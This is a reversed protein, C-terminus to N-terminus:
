AENMSRALHQRVQYLSDLCATARSKLNQEPAKLDPVIILKMKAALASRAGNDSDELALCYEVDVDLRKAALLYPDPAPKGREVADGGVIFEFNHLIGVKALKREALATATSTAVALRIRASKLFELLEILGAKVPIGERELTAEYDAHFASFLATESIPRGMARALFANSSATNLGICGLVMNQTFDLGMSAGARKLSQIALRESDLMLGDMDFIVAKINRM